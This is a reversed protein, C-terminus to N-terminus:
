LGFETVRVSCNYAVKNPMEGATDLPSPAENFLPNLHRFLCRDGKTPNPLSPEFRCDM